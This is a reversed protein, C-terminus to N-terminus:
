HAQHLFEGNKNIFVRLNMITTGSGAMMEQIRRVNPVFIEGSGHMSCSGSVEDKSTRLINPLSYSNHLGGTQFTGTM